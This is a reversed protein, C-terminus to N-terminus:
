TPTCVACFVLGSNRKKSDEAWSRDVKHGCGCLTADGECISELDLRLQDVEVEVLPHDGAHYIRSIRETRKALGDILNKSAIM